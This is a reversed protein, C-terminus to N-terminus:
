RRERGAVFIAFVVTTAGAAAGPQRDDRLFLRIRRHEARELIRTSRLRGTISPARSAFGSGVWARGKFPLTERRAVPVGGHICNRGVIAEVGCRAEEVSPEIERQTRHAVRREVLHVAIRDAVRPRHFFHIEREVDVIQAVLETRGLPVQDLTEDREEGGTIGITAFLRTSFRYLCM